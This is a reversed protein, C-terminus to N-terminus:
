ETEELGLAARSLTADLTAMSQGEADMAMGDLLENAHHHPINHRAVVHHLATFPLSNPAGALARETETRLVSLRHAAEQRTLARANHGLTQGDISDDCHRCWAYLMAVDARTAAPFLRLASAFSKSGQEIQQYAYDVVDDM